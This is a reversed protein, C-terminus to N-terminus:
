DKARSNFLFQRPQAKRNDKHEQIGEGELTKANGSQYQGAV